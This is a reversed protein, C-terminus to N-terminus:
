YGSNYIIIFQSKGRLHRVPLFVRRTGLFNYYIHNPGHFLLYLFHASWVVWSSLYMARLQGFGGREGHGPYQKSRVSPSLM